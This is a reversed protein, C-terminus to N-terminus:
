FFLLSDIYCRRLRGRMLAANMVALRHWASVWRASPLRTLFRRAFMWPASSNRELMAGTSCTPLYSVWVSTPAPSSMNHPAEDPHDRVTVTPSEAMLRAFEAYGAGRRLVRIAGFAFMPPVSGPASYLWDATVLPTLRFPATFISSADPKTGVTPLVNM